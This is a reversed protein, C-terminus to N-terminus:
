KVIKNNLRLCITSQWLQNIFFSYVVICFLNTVTIITALYELFYLNLMHRLRCLTNIILFILHVNFQKYHSYLKLWSMYNDIFYYFFWIIHRSKFKSSKVKWIFVTKNKLKALLWTESPNNHITIFFISTTILSSSYLLLSIYQHKSTIQM